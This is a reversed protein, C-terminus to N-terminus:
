LIKVSRPAITKCEYLEAPRNAEGRKKQGTKKIFGLSLIKKRFNRKDLKKRLIIEYMNQLETLSFNKPLVNCVINTYELKGRLRLIAHAVIANHDYALPPLADVPCWRIDDNHRALAQDGEKTLALYAVSVVRGRPDRNVASFTYLQETYVNKFGGKERLHRAAAEPATEEPHILGGPLGWKNIFFPPRHVRILLVRLKQGIVACLVTDTAIVAFRLKKIKRNTM